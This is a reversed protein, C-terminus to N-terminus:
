HRASEGSMVRPKFGQLTMHASPKKTVVYARKRTSTAATIKTSDEQPPLVNDSATAATSATNRDVGDLQTSFDSIHGRKTTKKITITIAKPNKKTPNKTTRRKTTIQTTSPTTKTTPTAQETIATDPATTTTTTTTTTRKTTTITTTRKTTTTTITGCDINIKGHHAKPM